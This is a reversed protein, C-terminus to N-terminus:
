NHQQTSTVSCMAFLLLSSWTEEGVSVTARAIGNGHIKMAAALKQVGYISYNKWCNM